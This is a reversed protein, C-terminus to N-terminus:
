FKARFYTIQVISFVIDLGRLPGTAPRRIVFRKSKTARSVRYHDSTPTATGSAANRQTKQMRRRRWKTKAIQEAGDYIASM